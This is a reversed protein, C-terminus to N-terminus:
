ARPFLTGMADIRILPLLDSPPTVHSAFEENSTAGLKALFDACQNGEGLCHHISFNRTHLLYKIDQILLAYAHYNSAHETLLKISLMSDSYCVMEEVGLEVILLLSRHILEAMLIDTTTALFGSFGSIFFGVSNRIIGGYGARIPTGLCNGDVNLVVRNFNNNNWRVMRDLHPAFATHFTSKILDATNQIHLNIQTLSWTEHSPCMQNRHSM